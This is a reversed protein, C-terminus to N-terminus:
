MSKMDSANYVEKPIKSNTPQLCPASNKNQTLLLLFHNLKLYPLLRKSPHKMGEGQPM